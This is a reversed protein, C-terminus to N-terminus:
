RKRTHASASDPEGATVTRPPTTVLMSNAPSSNVTTARQRLSENGDFFQEREQLVGNRSLGRADFHGVVFAVAVGCFQEDVVVLAYRVLLRSEDHAPKREPLWWM